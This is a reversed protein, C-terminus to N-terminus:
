KKGLNLLDESTKVQRLDKVLFYMGEDPCLHYKTIKLEKEEVFLNKFWDVLNKAAPKYKLSLDAINRQIWIQANVDNAKFFDNRSALNELEIKVRNENSTCKAYKCAIGKLKGFSANTNQNNNNNLPAIKM